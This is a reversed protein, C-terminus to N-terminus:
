ISVGGLDMRIVGHRSRNKGFHARRNEHRFHLGVTNGRTLGPRHDTQAITLRQHFTKQM